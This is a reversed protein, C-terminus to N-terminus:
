GIGVRGPAQKPIPYDLSLPPLQRGQVRARVPREVSASEVPISRLTQAERGDVHVLHEGERAPVIDADRHDDIRPRRLDHGAVTRRDVHLVPLVPGSLMSHGEEVQEGRKKGVGITWPGDTAVEYRVIGM